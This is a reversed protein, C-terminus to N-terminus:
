YALPDDSFRGFHAREIEVIASNGARHRLLNQRDHNTMFNFFDSYLAVPDFRKFSAALDERVLYTDQFMCVPVYGRKSAIDFVARLPQHINSWAVSSPLRSPYGPAIDTGGEVIVVAPTFGMEDFIEIDPGDVDISAFSVDNPNVGHQKLLADLAAGRVGQKPAGVMANILVCNRKFRDGIKAFRKADAEILVGRWGQEYLFRGNSLYIGDWAGFEVYTSRKIGLRRFIEGLIGDQGVQSYVNGYHFLLSEPNVLAVREPDRENQYRRNAFNRVKELARRTDM